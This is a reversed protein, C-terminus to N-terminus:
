SSHFRNGHRRFFSSQRNVKWMKTNLKSYCIKEELITACAKYADTLDNKFYFIWFKRGDRLEKEFKAYKSFIHGGVNTM